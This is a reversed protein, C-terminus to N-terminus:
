QNDGLNKSSFIPLPVTTPIQLPGVLPYKLLPANASSSTAHTLVGSQHMSPDISPDWTPTLSPMGAPNNSPYKSLSDNANSSPPHPLLGLQHVSPGISPDGTPMISPNQIPNVAGTLNGSTLKPRQALFNDNPKTLKQNNTTIPNISGRLYPQHNNQAILAACLWSLPKINM